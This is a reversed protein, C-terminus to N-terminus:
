CPTTAVWLACFAPHLALTFWPEHATKTADYNFSSSASLAIKKNKISKLIPSISFLLVSSIFQSHSIFNSKRSRRVLLFGHIKHFSAWNWHSERPPFWIFKKLFTQVLCHSSFPFSTQGMFYLKVRPWLEHRGPRSTVPWLEAVNALTYLVHIWLDRWIVHSCFQNGRM